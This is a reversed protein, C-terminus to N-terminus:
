PFRSSRFSADIKDPKKQLAKGPNLSKHKLYAANLRPVRTSTANSVPFGQVCHFPGSVRKYRMQGKCGLCSVQVERGKLRQFKRGRLM